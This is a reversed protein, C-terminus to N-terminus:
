KEIERRYYKLRERRLEDARLREMNQRIQLREQQTVPVFSNCGTILIPTLLLLSILPLKLNKTRPDSSSYHRTRNPKELDRANVMDWESVQLLRFSAVIM